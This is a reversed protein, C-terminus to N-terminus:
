FNYISKQFLCLFSVTEHAHLQTGFITIGEEPFKNTCDAVCYGTIPFERQRPPISNADSYILGLEIIGADHPRLDSTYTFRFGSNDVIGAKLDPNNYHIEVMVLPRFDKGGFPLGAEKPYFVTSAGLTIISNTYPFGENVLGDVLCRSSQQM